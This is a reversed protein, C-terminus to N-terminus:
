GMPFSSLLDLVSQLIGILTEILSTIAGIDFGSQLPVLAFAATVAVLLLALM